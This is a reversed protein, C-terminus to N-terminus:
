SQIRLYSMLAYRLETTWRDGLIPAVLAHSQIASQSILLVMAALQDPRGPRIDGREQGEGIAWEIMALLMQQSTGLRVSVYQALATAPERWLVAFLANEQLGQAVDVFRDVQEELTSGREPVAGLVEAMERNLLEGTLSQVDPWRRYVTPRSVGAVRAVEALAIKGGEARLMCSRAADLVRDTINTPDSERSSLEPSDNRISM